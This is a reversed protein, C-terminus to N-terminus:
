DAPEEARWDDYRTTPPVAGGSVTVLGAVRAIELWLRVQREPQGAAKGVRRLERTGIGGTKLLVPPQRSCEDVVATLGRLAGTAAAASEREVADVPVDTLPMPPPTPDFPAHYDAGRLALAVERPMEPPGWGDVNMLLARGSAWALPHGKPLGYYATLGDVYPGDRAVTEIANRASRPASRVLNRVNEPQALWAALDAVADKKLRGVAIGANAAAERLEHQPRAALLEALPRGLRLPCRWVTGLPAIRLREGDPWALAVRQLEALASALGREGPDRGLLAALEDRRCGDGLAALAEAAQVAPKALSLLAPAVSHHL